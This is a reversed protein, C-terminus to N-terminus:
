RRRSRVSVLHHRLATDGEAMRVSGTVLVTGDDALTVGPVDDDQVEVPLWESVYQKDDITLVPRIVTFEDEPDDDSVATLTM